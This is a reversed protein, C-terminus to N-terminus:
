DSGADDRELAMKVMAAARAAVATSDPQIKEGGSTLDLKPGYKRPAIMQAYKHRTEIRLKRHGLMDEKRTTVKEGDDTVIEGMEQEDAIDLTEDMLADAGNERARAVKNMLVDDNFYWNWWTTRCPMGKDERLIRSVARGGALEALVHAAIKDREKATYTAKTAGM